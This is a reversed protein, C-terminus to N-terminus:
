ASRAPSVPTYGRYTPDSLVGGMPGRTIAEPLWDVADAVLSEFAAPAILPEPEVSFPGPKDFYRFV